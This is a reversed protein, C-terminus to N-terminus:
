HLRASASSTSSASGQFPTSSSAGASSTLNAELPGIDLAGCPSTPASVCGGLYSGLSGTSNGTMLVQTPSYASVLSDTNSQFMTSNLRSGIYTAHASHEAALRALLFAVEPSTTYGAAGIFAGSLTYEFQYAYQVFASINHLRPAKSGLERVAEETLNNLRQIGELNSLVKSASTSNSVQAAVTSNLATSKYFGNLFGSLAYTYQLVQTDSSTLACATSSSSAASSSSSAASSSSSAASTLAGGAVLLWTIQSGFRM